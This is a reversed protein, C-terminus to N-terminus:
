LSAGEKKDKVARRRGLFEAVLGTSSMVFFTSIVIILLYRSGSVSFMEKYELIGVAPPVFFLLLKSLLFDAGKEIWELRVWGFHLAAFVILIGVISGPVPLHLRESVLRGLYAFMILLGIQGITLLVRRVHVPAFRDPLWAFRQKKHPGSLPPAPQKNM